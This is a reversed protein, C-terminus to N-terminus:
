LANNELDTRMATLLEAPIEPSYPQGPDIVIGFGDRLSLILDRGTVSAAVPAAERHPTSLLETTFAAIVNPAGDEGKSLAMPRFTSPDENEAQGLVVFRSGLIAVMVSFQPIDGRRAAELLPVLPHSPAAAPAGDEGATAPDPLSVGLDFGEGSTIEYTISDLLERVQEDDGRAGPTGNRDETM